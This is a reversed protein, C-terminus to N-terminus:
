GGDDTRWGSRNMYRVDPTSANNLEGASQADGAMPYRNEGVPLKTRGARIHKRGFDLAVSLPLIALLMVAPAPEDILIAFV